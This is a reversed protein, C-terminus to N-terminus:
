RVFPLDVIEAPVAPHEASTAELRSGVSNFGRKVYALAIERPDSRTASTIWGIEKGEPGTLRMGPALPINKVSVLGCLQKNRQGSMKMRSITEQGIYCGKDYDICRQELNAEIPIIDGTLERGWRPIGQEIRFVEACNEDCFEFEKSLETALQDHQTSECSIDHGSRGFRNALAIRAPISFNPPSGGTVHFISLRATVDEIQVDDAIVYRELRTQFTSQLAPDVDLLFSDAQARAFLHADMKGKANLVCAEVASTETAKRIDNTLQGNLFRLRDVGSVRLKVRASLDFFARDLSRLQATM